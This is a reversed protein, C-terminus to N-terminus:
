ANEPPMQAIISMTQLSITCVRRLLDTVQEKYPAFRYTNFLRAITPDKPKKEKYQDLVWELASRNGLKYQWAQPPIGTLTTNEDLQISGGQKDATLKPKPNDKQHVEIRHLPYPEAQEYHLHLNALEQGWAAWQWFNPYFPIRPFQRKLNLEYKSRYAPHHLVAYVYYFLHLKTIKKDKYHRTFQNLAWDTINDTREGSETYRYLPLCQTKELFDLGAVKDTLLCQFPKSTSTGSLYITQNTFKNQFGFIHNNQYIRHTIAKGFYFYQQAYPRYISQVINNEDFEINTGRKLHDELEQTWKITRDVFDNIPMEKESSNWRQKEIEYVDCFFKTKQKLNELNFDYVWEDRNTVVGLSFLEFIAKKSNGAKVSKDAVPLLSNWDSDPALNIWNNNADPQIHTFPITEIPNQTLWELKQEKRWEDPLNTYYITCRADKDKKPNAKKVLFMIAVGTQIGFVNHTTGAIKPNARVDSQTDIIYAADFDTHLCKRFGDFTRSDIFSRNTVFAIIGNQDLRDFAWRYFRAYMDYVKTKQATSYKIFTDKIRKDIEPYQRNKNNDNENAQNANYPPNGIIVAIRKDNQHKIRRSNEQTLPAFLDTQKGRYAFGMNDLTDVFCLNQFEAYHKTKQTYTFEINLNSIYYPLIAVENAFLENQYKYPLKDKPLYDILDCIFTGTGTAPDLINVGPDHLFKNFHRHLLTDTSKIMFQVIESPTYVVGLRDAAKPNYSKYFTEYIVKLFKQKEHHDAIGAAAANITQYYHQIGALATRRTAGTFFTAIVTELQRAINNERHFQTEDFITNFVDETLIHQILMEQVDDASVDPNISNQCLELFQQAAKQYAPNQNQAQQIINRLTQTVKPVDQKFLEIAQRFNKVEPREFGIFATIISHLANPDNVKIRMVEASNQYLVATQSDEFLINDQPYGRDFKKQIEDELVDAEDKSEWYGWDQRLTDKLTGDPTVNKNGTRAKITVEPVLLLGKTKAYENLLHYFANRIATEKKTGGYHMINEVERYYQHIQPLM